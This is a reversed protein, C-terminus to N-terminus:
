AKWCPKDGFYQCIKAKCAQYRCFAHEFFADDVVSDYALKSFYKVLKCGNSFLRLFLRRVTIFKLKTQSEIIFIRSFM